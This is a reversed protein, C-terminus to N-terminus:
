EDNDSDLGIVPCPENFLEEWHTEWMKIGDTYDVYMCSQMYSRLEPYMNLINKGYNTVCMDYLQYSWKTADEISHANDIDNLIEWVDEVFKLCTRTLPASKTV